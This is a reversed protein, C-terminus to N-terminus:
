YFAPWAQTRVAGSDVHATLGALVHAVAGCAIVDESCGAGHAISHLARCSASVCAASAAHDAVIAVIATIGGAAAVAKTTDLTAVLGLAAPSTCADAHPSSLLNLLKPVAGAAAIAARADDDNSALHALTALAARFDGSRAEFALFCAGIGGAATISTRAWDNASLHSLLDGAASAM